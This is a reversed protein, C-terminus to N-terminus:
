DINGDCEDSLRADGGDLAQTVRSAGSLLMEMRTLLEVDAM